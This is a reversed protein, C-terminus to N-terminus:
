RRDRQDHLVHGAAIGPGVLLHADVVVRQDADAHEHGADGADAGPEAIQREQGASVVVEVQRQDALDLEGRGHREVEAHEQGHDAHDHQGQGVQRPDAALGLRLGGSSAARHVDDQRRPAACSSLHLEQDGAGDPTAVATPM